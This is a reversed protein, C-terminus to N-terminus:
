WVLNAHQEQKYIVIGQTSVHYPCVQAQRDEPELLLLSKNHHASQMRMSLSINILCLQVSGVARVRSM